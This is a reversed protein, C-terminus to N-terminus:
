AKQIYRMESALLWKDNPMSYHNLYTKRYKFISTIYKRFSGAYVIKTVNSLRKRFGNLVDM